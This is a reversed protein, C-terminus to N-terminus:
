PRGDAGNTDTLIAVGGDDHTVQQRLARRPQWWRIWGWYWAATLVYDLLLLLAISPGSTEVHSLSNSMQTMSDLPRINGDLIVIAILTFPIIKALEEAAHSNIFALIRTSLVIAAPLVVLQVANLNNNAFFLVLLFFTYWTWILIPITVAYLVVDRRRARPGQPTPTLVLRPHDMARYVVYALVASVTILVTWYVM